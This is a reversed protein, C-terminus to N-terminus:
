SPVRTSPCNVISRVTEATGTSAHGAFSQATCPGGLIDSGRGLSSSHGLVILKGVEGEILCAGLRAFERLADDARAVGVVPAIGLDDVVRGVVPPHVPELREFAKVGLQLPLVAGRQRHARGLGGIERRDLVGLAHEAEVVDERGVLKAVPGDLGLGGRASLHVPQALQLDVPERDAQTVLVPHECRGRRAAVPPHALDHGLVRQTQGVDRTLERTLAVGRDDLHSALDEDGDRGELVEIAPLALEPLARQGLRALTRGTTAASAREVFLLGLDGRRSPEGGERVRAIRGAATQTLLDVLLAAELELRPKRPDGRELEVHVADSGPLVRGDCRLALDVVQQSGPAQGGRRVTADLRRDIPYEGEHRVVALVSVVDLVLDVSHDDLDVLEREVVLEPGGAACRAPRDGVLVRGLLHVRLEEVDDDRDSAGTTRRGERDHFGGLDGAADDALGGQVVLVHHLDLAHEDAVRDHQALGAVDDGLNQPGHDLQTVAAFACEDHGRVAGLAAGGQSRRFLAVDVQPARVSTGAGGLHTSTDLVDARSSREVHFSEALDGRCRQGLGLDGVLWREVGSAPSNSRVTSSSTGM